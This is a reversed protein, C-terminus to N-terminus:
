NAFYFMKYSNIKKIRLNKNLYNSCPSKSYMCEEGGSYFYLFENNEDFIKKFNKAKNEEELKMSYIRPWPSNYYVTDLSSFIRNFNKSYFLVMGFILFFSLFKKNFIFKNNDVFFYIFVFIIFSSLFSLGFRYVPFKLFWVLNFFGIFLILFIIKKDKLNKKFNYNKYFSFRFIYNTSLLIILILLPTIKNIIKKLHNNSWTNLWNFDSTYELYNLKKESDPYGKSWAEAEKSATNIISTNSYELNNICTFKLPFIICSSIFINKLLWLFILLYIFLMKYSKFLDVKKTNMLILTLPVFLVFIMFPKLTVLFASVLSINIFEIDKINKINEIKVIIVILILFFINAPGDNGLSSYRNFSYISFVIILFISIINKENNKNIESKFNKYLFLFYFGPLLALPINLFEKKFFFNVQIASIYQFISTHGFRYHLNTLGLILKNENLISTFPLHYLGADPRNINSFTLISFTTFSLYILIIIILKKNEFNLFFYIFFIISFIIFISGIFNNLPYFFNIILGFFGIFIYGNISDIFIDFKSKKKFILFKLLYGNGIIIMSGVLSAIFINIM